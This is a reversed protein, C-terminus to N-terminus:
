RIRIKVKTSKKSPTGTVDDLLRYKFQDKRSADANATYTIKNDAGIVVTGMSPASTIEITANRVNSDEDKDNRLVDIVVSQGPKVRARDPNVEPPDMKTQLMVKVEATDSGWQNYVTYSFRDEDEDSGDHTYTFTGDEKMEIAGHEPYEDMQVKGGNDTDNALVGNILTVSLSGGEAVSYRDDTAVPPVGTTTSDSSDDGTNGTFGGGSTSSAAVTVSISASASAGGADTVTYGVNVPGSTEASGSITVAKDVFSVSGFADFAATDVATVRLGSKGEADSDNDLVRVELIDGVAMSVSDDNAVPADNQATVAIKVGAMSSPEGAKVLRYLFSDSDSESGDHTYDFGNATTVFSGAVAHKPGSVVEVTAGNVDDNALVNISVSAGELVGANDRRAVPSSGSTFALYTHNPAPKVEVEAYVSAEGNAITDNESQAQVNGAVGTAPNSLYMASDTIRIRGGDLGMESTDMIADKSKLPPLAVAYQRRPNPYLNGDEAIIDFNAGILTPTHIRTSGNFLRFLPTTANNVQLQAYTHGAFTSQRSTQQCYTDEPCGAATITDMTIGFFKPAYNITSQMDATDYDPLTTTDAVDAHIQPDIESYIVPFLNSYDLGPYAWRPDGSDRPADAMLAGVLGMQVQLQQHTGSQYMYSGESINNWTYSVSGGASAEADFSHLRSSGDPADFTVPTMPKFLGPIILSTARPLRNHLNITLDYTGTGKNNPLLISPGPSQYSVGACPASQDNGVADGGIAYGWMHISTTNGMNGTNAPIDYEGACLDVTIQEALAVSPMVVGLGLISLISANILSRKM